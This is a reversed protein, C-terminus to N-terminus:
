KEYDFNRKRFFYAAHKYTRNYDSGICYAFLVFALAQASAKTVVELIERKTMFSQRLSDPNNALVQDAVQLTKGAVDVDKRLNWNPKRTDKDIPLEMFRDDNLKNRVATDVILVRTKASVTFNKIIISQPIKSNLLTLLVTHDNIETTVYNKM